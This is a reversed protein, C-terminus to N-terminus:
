KRLTSPPIWGAKRWTVSIDTRCAPVYVFDPRTLPADMPVSNRVSDSVHSDNNISNALKENAKKWKKVGNLILNGNGNTM